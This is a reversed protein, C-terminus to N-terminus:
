KEKSMREIAHFQWDRIHAHHSAPRKNKKFKPPGVLLDFGVSPNTVDRMIDLLNTQYVQGPGDHPIPILILDHALNHTM